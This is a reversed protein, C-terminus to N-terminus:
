QKRGVAWRRMFNQYYRNVVPEEDLFLCNEINRENANRTLNFSGGIVLTADIILVKCHAIHVPDFYVPIGAAKLYAAGKIETKDLLATVEVGRRQAAALAALISPESLQFQQVLIQNRAAAIAAVIYVAVKQEGQFPPSFYVRTGARAAGAALMLILIVVALRRLKM